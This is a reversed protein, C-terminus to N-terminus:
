LVFVSAVSNLFLSSYQKSALMKQICLFRSVLIYNYYDVVCYNNEYNLQDM